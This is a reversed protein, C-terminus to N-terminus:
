GMTVPSYQQGTKLLEDAHQRTTPTIDAGGIMRATEELRGAHDLKFIRTATRGDEVHKVIRYHHDAFKAIQALHTICIVQHRVALGALKKGVRDATQGGIGADVEDFILTMDTDTPIMISKLALITRSLEGGSAIASLPKLGEGVNPSIMLCAQELGAETVSKGDITLWPSLRNPVTHDSFSVGVRTNEMNLSGLSDQLSRALGDAAQRRKTSLEAALAALRDYVSAMQTEITAIKDTLSEIAALETEIEGLRATVDSLEPGYKRKLQNLQNLRADIEELRAPDFQIADLYSQLQRAIDETKYNIEAIDRASPELFSDIAAVQEMQKRVEGLKEYIAGAGAYLSEVAGFVSQYLMEANKLRIQEQKLVADEDPRLNADAIESHQFRLLDAQAQQSRNRGQFDELQGILPKLTHYVTRLNERLPVLGAFRDLIALHESETLLRQHEHQGSIAALNETVATLLQMTALRGNIYIRHRDNRAIVRRIILEPAPEFGHAELIFPAGSGAPLDFLAELEANEAGTRILRASARSGLLLNVANVIVSKGAGTEGSLVTLGRDFRITLDDIIAFNRISLECLM